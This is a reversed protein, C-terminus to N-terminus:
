FIDAGAGVLDKVIGMHGNHAALHLATWHQVGGTLNLDFVEESKEGLM